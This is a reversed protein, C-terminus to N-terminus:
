PGGPATRGTDKTDNSEDQGGGGDGPNDTGGHSGGGGDPSTGGPVSDNYFYGGQNRVVMSVPRGPIRLEGYLLPVPDGEILTQGSGQFLYSEDQTDVSPDPLMMQQIGTLALSATASIASIGWANIAGDTFAWGVQEAGFGGTTYIIIAAVIAAFVKAGGSKSGIPQPSIYMDGEQFNLLLERDDKLSVGQVECMFGINKETCDKLYAQFAPDNGAICKFVDAVSSARIKLKSGYKEGLEGDLYVNRLM